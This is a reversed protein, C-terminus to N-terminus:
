GMTVPLLSPLSTTRLCAPTYLQIVLHRSAITQKGVTGRLSRHPGQALHLQCHPVVTVFLLKDADDMAAPSVGGM